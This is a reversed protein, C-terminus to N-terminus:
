RAASTARVRGKGKRQRAEQGLRTFAIDPEYGAVVKKPKDLGQFLQGIVVGSTRGTLAGATCAACNLRRFDTVTRGSSLSSATNVPGAVPYKPM